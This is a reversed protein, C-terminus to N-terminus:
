GVRQLESSSERVIHYHWSFGLRLYKKRGLVMYHLRAPAAWKGSHLGWFTYLNMNKSLNKFLGLLEKISCLKLLCIKELLVPIQRCGSATQAPGPMAWSARLAKVSASLIVATKYLAIQPSLWFSFNQM